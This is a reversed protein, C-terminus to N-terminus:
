RRGCELGGVGIEHLPPFNGHDDSVEEKHTPPRPEHQQQTRQTPAKGAPCLFVYSSIIIGRISEPVHLYQIGLNLICVRVRVDYIYVRTPSSSTVNCKVGM